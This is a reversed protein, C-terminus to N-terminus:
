ALESYLHSSCHHFTEIKIQLIPLFLFAPLLPCLMLFTMKSSFSLQSSTREVLRMGLTLSEIGDSLLASSQWMNNLNLRGLHKSWDPRSDKPMNRINFNPTRLPVYLSSLDSFNSLSLISNMRRFNALRQSSSNEVSFFPFFSDPQNSKGKKRSPFTQYDKIM